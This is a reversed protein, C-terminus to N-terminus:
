LIFSKLVTIVSAHFTYYLLDCNNQILLKKIFNVQEDLGIDFSDIDSFNISEEYELFQNKGRYLYHGDNIDDRTGSIVGIKTQWAELIAKQLAIKKNFHCATGKFIIRNFMPNQEILYATIVPLNFPNKLVFFKVDLTKSLTFKDLHNNQVTLSTRIDAIESNREVCELFSYTLAEDFNNGSALGSSNSGFLINDLINSNLSLLNKPLYHSGKKLLWNGLYWELNYDPSINVATSLKDFNIFPYNKERLENISGIFDPKSMNEAYHSEISEMCAGVKASIDNFGKGMSVCLSKSSPRIASYVKIDISEDLYSLNSIRSIGIETIYQQINKFTNLESIFRQPM